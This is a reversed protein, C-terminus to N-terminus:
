SELDDIGEIYLFDRPPVHDLSGSLIAGVGEVAQERKVYQGKKGIQDAVVEFYQTMFNLLKQARHYVKRNEASLESEGVISVIQQLNKHQELIKKSEQFLEYHDQGVVDPDVATSSSALADLAPYRGEQYIDRSLVASSDFYPLIAQVGPDTIDDAPVYVAQLSTLGGKETSIFREELEGIESQMTPQYGGESPIQGLTMSLENGAQLFRYINDIFVFSDQGRSDRFYEAITAAVHGVNVRIPAVENMQGYVLAASDLVGVEELTQHLEHGERIREGLGAYVLLKKQHFVVNHMLEVLLVTKGVGAGGFLGLKGGQLLPTFFDIAKIGTEIIERESTAEKYAPTKHIPWKKEAKIPGREDIPDGFANMVRGLLEEGVPVKLPEGTKQVESGKAMKEFEALAICTCIFTNEGSVEKVEMFAKPNGKLILVEGLFPAKDYIEVKVVEGQIERIYGDVRNQDENKQDKLGM